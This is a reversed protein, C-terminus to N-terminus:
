TPCHGKEALKIRVDPFDVGVTIRIGCVDNLKSAREAAQVARYVERIEEGLERAITESVNALDGEESTWRVIDVLKLQGICGNVTSIIATSEFRMAKKRAM